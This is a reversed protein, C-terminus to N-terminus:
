KDQLAFVSKLLASTRAATNNRIEKEEMKIMTYVGELAQETVYDTLDPNVENVFPISNYRNIINGWIVDAGTKAFSNKIVPNFKTYLEQQTNQKLYNTAADDAGLLINKADAFTIGKVANVFIPTAEKVADEAARNMIKLGEDALNDLGIDRLAKDVKQLESPLMIRVLENKNFGDKKTLKSVQKDIGKDLAERLGSAITANDMTNSIPYQDLVQQLEACSNTGVLVLLIIPLFLIKRM